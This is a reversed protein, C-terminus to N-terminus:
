TNVFQTFLHTLTLRANANRELVAMAAAIQGHLAFLRAATFSEALDTAAERDTFFILPARESQSLLILDRLALSVANLQALVEGRATGFSRLLLLIGDGKDRAALLTLLRTANERYQLHPARATADLLTLARGISGGSLTLLAEFEDSAERKLTPAGAAAGEASTLLYAELAERAIPQLRLRPARSRITELLAGANETLLLFLVFPPPEELTLLFANQAEETMTHADEIIYVKLNLDNPVAAISRRLDRIISVGMTARDSERSVTIVDHCNGAEIKRCFKCHGCPLPAGGDTRSECAAAMAILRALTHKGFGKPGELIYAHSFTANRLDTGLQARLASNGALQPFLLDSVADGKRKGWFRL